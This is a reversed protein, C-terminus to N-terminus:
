KARVDLCVMDFRGRAILRGEVLVMPGWTEDSDLVKWTGLPKFAEPTAEALTLVGHDDMAYIVGGAILYPGLGFRHNTGSTWKQEGDPTMCIMQRNPVVLYIHGQYFIPTQQDSGCERAKKRWAKEHTLKGNEEKFRLMLSGANYGGTFLICDVGCPVPTAVAAINVKWEDTQWVVKGTAAEVAVIGGSACYVYLKKGGFTWTLISTHTMNWGNDNPTTWVPKGTEQNVAMMLVDEGAPALILKDGDFFPCQGAYWPPEKTKYERVLDIGWRFEGSKADACLVHCKPGITVVYKENVAPITRSMGHNRKVKVKYSRRWVESGDGALCRLM